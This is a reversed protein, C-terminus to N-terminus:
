EECDSEDHHRRAFKKLVEKMGVVYDLDNIFVLFLIPRLVVGQPFGSLVEAQSSHKWNLVVRQRQGKLSLGHGLGHLLEEESAM